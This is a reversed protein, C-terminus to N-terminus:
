IVQQVSILYLGLDRIRNLLGHLAAQDAVAGHLTTTGAEADYVIQMGDFWASWRSSLQGKVVIAYRADHMNDLNDHSENMM